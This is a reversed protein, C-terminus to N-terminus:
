IVLSISHDSTGGENKVCHWPVVDHDFITCCLTLLRYKRRLEEGCEKKDARGTGGAHKGRESMCVGREVHGSGRACRDSFTGCRAFICGGCAFGVCLDVGLSQVDCGV